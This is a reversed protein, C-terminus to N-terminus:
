DPCRGHSRGYPTAGAMASRLDSTGSTASRFSRPTVEEPRREYGARLQRLASRLTDGVLSDIEDVLLVLPGWSLHM